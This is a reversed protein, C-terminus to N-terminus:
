IGRGVGFVFVLQGGWYATVVALVAAVLTVGILVLEVKPREGLSFRNALRLGAVLPLVFFLWRGLSSHLDYAGSAVGLEAEFELANLGSLYAPIVFLAAACLNVLAAEQLLRVRLLVGLLEFVCSFVLLTM